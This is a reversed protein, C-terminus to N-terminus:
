VQSYDTPKLFVRIIRSVTDAYQPDRSLTKWDPHDIFAAWNADREEMNKFTLMYTLAPMAPGAMLHGFFVPHLGTAYFIDLEGENFMRVKRRVADDSFGEYTRFEFIREGRGPVAMQPIGSFARMLWTDYRDYVQGNLPIEHYAKAAEQYAKDELLRGPLAAYEAASAYPILVYLKPPQPDAMETFVGVNAVGHRNLAPILAESLYAGMPQMRGGGRLTYVRLEYWEQKTEQSPVGASLGTAALTTLGTAKVFTRRKM